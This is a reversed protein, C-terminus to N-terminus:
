LLALEAPEVDGCTGADSCAEDGEEAEDDGPVEEAEALMELAHLLGDAYTRIHAQTSSEQM